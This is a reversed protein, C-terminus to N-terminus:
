WRSAYKMTGASAQRRPELQAALNRDMEFRRGRPSPRAATSPPRARSYRRSGLNRRSADPRRSGSRPGSGPRRAAGQLRAGPEWRPAAPPSASCSRLSGSPPKAPWTTAPSRTRTTSLPPQPRTPVKRGSPLSTTSPSSAQREVVRDDVLLAIFQIARPPLIFAGKDLRGGVALPAQDLGGVLAPQILLGFAAGAPVRAIGAPRVVGQRLLPDRRPDRGGLRRM